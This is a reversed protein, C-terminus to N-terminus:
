DNNKVKVENNIEIYFKGADNMYWVKQELYGIEGEERPISDTHVPAEFTGAFTFGADDCALKDYHTIFFREYGDKSQEALTECKHNVIKYEIVQVVTFLLGIMVIGVFIKLVVQGVTSPKDFNYEDDGGWNEHDFVSKKNM